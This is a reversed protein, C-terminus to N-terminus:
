FNRSRPAAEHSIFALTFSHCPRSVGFSLSSFYATKKQAFNSDTYVVFASNQSAFGTIQESRFGNSFTMWVFDGVLDRIRYKVRCQSGVWLRAHRTFGEHGRTEYNDRALDGGIRHEVIGFNGAFRDAFDTIRM